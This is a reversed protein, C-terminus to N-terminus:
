RPTARRERGSESGLDRLGRDGPGPVQTVQDEQQPLAQTSCCSPPILPSGFASRTSQVRELVFWLSHKKLKKSQKGFYWIELYNCVTVSTVICLATILLTSVLATLM